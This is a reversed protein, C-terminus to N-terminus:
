RLTRFNFKNHWFIVTSGLFNKGNLIVVTNNISSVYYSLLNTHIFEMAANKM